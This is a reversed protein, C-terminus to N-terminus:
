QQQICNDQSTYMYIIFGYNTIQISDDQRRRTIIFGYNTYVIRVQTYIIFSYNTYM